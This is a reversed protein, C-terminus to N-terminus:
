RPKKRRSRARANALYAARDRQEEAVIARVTYLVRLKAVTREIQREVEALTQDLLRPTLLVKV